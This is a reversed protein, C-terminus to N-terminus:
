PRRVERDLDDLDDALRVLAPDDLASSAPHTTPPDPAAAGYLLLAVEGPARGTRGAVAAVLAAPEPDAGLGLTPV